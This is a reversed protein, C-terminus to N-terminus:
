TSMAMAAAGETAGSGKNNGSGGNGRNVGGRVSGRVGCLGGGSGGHCRQQEQAAAADAMVETAVIKSLLSRIKSTPGWLFIQSPDPVSKPRTYLM